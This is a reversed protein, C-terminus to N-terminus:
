GELGGGVLWAQCLEAGTWSHMTVDVAVECYQVGIVPCDWGFQMVVISWSGDSGTGVNVPCGHYGIRPFRMLGVFAEEVPGM